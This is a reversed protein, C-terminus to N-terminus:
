GAATPAIFVEYTRPGSSPAGGIVVTMTAREGPTVALPRLVGAAAQQPGVRLWTEASTARGRGNLPRITITVTAPQLIWELNTVSVAAHIAFTPVLHLIGAAAPLPAPTISLAALAVMRTAALSPSALLAAVQSDLPATALTLRSRALVVGGPEYRLSLRADRWAENSSIIAHQIASLTAVPSVIPLQLPGAIAGILHDVASVRAETVNSLVEQVNGHLVPTELTEARQVLQNGTMRYSQLQTSLEARTLSSGHSLTAAVEDGWTNEDTLLSTSLTKFTTNQSRQQTATGHAYRQIDRAFVIVVTAVLAAIVLV